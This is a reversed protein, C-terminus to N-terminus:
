TLFNESLGSKNSECIQRIMEDLKVKPEYGILSKIKGLDPIRRLMDEFGEEYAESYPLKVIESKSGSIRKVREALEMISVEEENGVNFVEGVAEPRKTLEVLAGTGVVDQGRLRARIENATSLADDFSVGRETLSHLMIGRMFPRRRGAADEVMLRGAQDDASREGTSARASM